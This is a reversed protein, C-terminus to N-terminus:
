TVTLSTTAPFATTTMWKRWGGSWNQRGCALAIIDGLRKLCCERGAKGVRSGGAAVQKEVTGVRREGEKQQTSQLVM